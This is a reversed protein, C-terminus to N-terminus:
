ISSSAECCRFEVEVEIVFGVDDVEVIVDNVLLVLLGKEVDVVELELLAKVAEENRFGSAGEKWGKPKSSPEEPPPPPEESRRL